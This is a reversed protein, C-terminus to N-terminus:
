YHLKGAHKFVYEFDDGEKIHPRKLIRGAIFQILTRFHHREIMVVEMFVVVINPLEWAIVNARFRHFRTQGLCKKARSLREDSFINTIWCLGVSKYIGFYLVWILLRKADISRPVVKANFREM